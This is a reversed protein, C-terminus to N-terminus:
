RQIQYQSSSIVLFLATRARFTRDAATASPLPALTSLISQKMPASMQGHMFTQDLQGVLQDANAAIAALASLSATIDIGSNTFQNRTVQDAFNARLTSTATTQLQFEPGLLTGNQIAYNPAFYNFVSPSHLVNQGMDRGRPALNLGLNTMSGGGTSTYTVAVNTFGLGRVIGTIYLVPERLHGDSDISAFTDTQRAEPDLLIAKVVAAMDGRVGAVNDKFVASIRSVYAPSPNSTVLHQIMQKGIFPPMNPHHFINQILGDLDQQATQGGSLTNSVAGSYQLLDKSSSDHQSGNSYVIMPVSRDTNGTFSQPFAQQLPNRAVYTWGTLARAFAQVQAETYSPIREGNGDLQFTGDENLMYLGITFLQLMERAYNENAISGTVPKASNGMDLYFGMASSRTIEDMIQAYNGFARNNLIRYYSLYSDSPTVTNGSVVWIQSLAFATRQRLQDPGNLANQFWVLQACVMPNGCLQNGQANVPLPSPIDPWSSPAVIAPNMQNDIYQAMALPFTGLTTRMQNITVVDAATAGFTAQDLFRAAPSPSSSRSPRTPRLLSFYTSESFAAGPDPNAVTLEVSGAQAAASPVTAKLESASTVTAAYLKGGFRVQAGPVFKNGGVTLELTEGSSERSTVQAIVPVPNWLVLETNSQAAGTDGTITVRNNAPVVSPATYLGSMSITGLSADGGTVGNVAWRIDTLVAGGASTASLQTTESARVTPSAASVQIATTTGMMSVKGGACGALAVIWGLFGALFVRRRM